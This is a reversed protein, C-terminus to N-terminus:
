DQEPTSPLAIIGLEARVHDLEEQTLIRVPSHRFAKWATLLLRGHRHRHAIKIARQWKVMGQQYLVLSDREQWDWDIDTLMSDLLVLEAIAVDAVNSLEVDLSSLLLAQRRQEFEEKSMREGPESWGPKRYLHHLEYLQLHQTSVGSRLRCLVSSLTHTDWDLRELSADYQKLSM